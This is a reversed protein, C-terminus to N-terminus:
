GKSRSHMGASPLHSLRHQYPQSKRAAVRQHLEIERPAKRRKEKVGRKKVSNAMRELGGCDNACRWENASLKRPVEV